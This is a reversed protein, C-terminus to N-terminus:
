VYWLATQGQDTEHSRPCRFSEDQCCGGEIPEIAKRCLQGMDGIITFMGLRMRRRRGRRLRM